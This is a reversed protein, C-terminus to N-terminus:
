AYNGLQYKRMEQELLAVADEKRIVYSAGKKFSPLQGTRALYYLRQMPFPRNLSESFIKCVQQLSFEGKAMDFVLQGNVVRNDRNYKNLRYNELDKLTTFWRRGIKHASLAKKKIAIYVSQRQIHAIQAAEPVSILDKGKTM